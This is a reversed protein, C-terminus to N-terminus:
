CLFSGFGFNPINVQDRLRVLEELIATNEQLCRSNFAVELKHRTAPDRAKKMCPFYHPYKLSVKCKGSATQACVIVCSFM